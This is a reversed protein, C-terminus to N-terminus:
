LTIFIMELPKSSLLEQSFPDQAYTSLLTETVGCM